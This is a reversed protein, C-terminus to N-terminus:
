ADSVRYARAARRIGPRPDQELRALLGRPVLVQLSAAARLASLRVYWKSDRLASLIAPGAGRIRMRALVDLANVRVGGSSDKVLPILRRALAPKGIRAVSAVAHLRVSMNPDRLAREIERAASPVPIHGLAHVAWRRRRVSRSRRIEDRLAPVAAAGYRALAGAARRPVAEGEHDFASILKQM